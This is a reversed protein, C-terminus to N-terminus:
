KGAQLDQGRVLNVILGGEAGETAKWGSSM